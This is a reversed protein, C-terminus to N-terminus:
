LATILPDYRAVRENREIGGLGWFFKKALWVQANPDGDFADAESHQHHEDEEGVRLLVNLSNLRTLLLLFCM